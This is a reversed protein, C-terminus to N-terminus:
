SHPLSTPNSVEGRTRKTGETTGGGCLLCCAQKKKRSKVDYVMKFCITQLVTESQFQLVEKKHTKGGKYKNLDPESMRTQLFCYFM